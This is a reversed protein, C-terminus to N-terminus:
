RIEGTKFGDGLWIKQFATGRGWESTVMRSIRKRLISSICVHLKKEGYCGEEEVSEVPKSGMEWGYRRLPPAGGWESTM